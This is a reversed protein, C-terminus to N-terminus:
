VGVYLVSLLPPPFLLLILKETPLARCPFKLLLWDIFAPICDIALPTSVEVGVTIKLEVGDPVTTEFLSTIVMVAVNESAIAAVGVNLKLPITDFATIDAVEDVETHSYVQVTDVDRVEVVAVTEPVSKDPLAYEPLSEISKV